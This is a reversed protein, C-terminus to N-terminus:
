RRNHRDDPGGNNASGGGLNRLQDARLKYHAVATELVQRLSYESTSELSATRSLDRETVDHLLKSLHKHALRVSASAEALSGFDATELGPPQPLSLAQALLRGYYFNVDDASRELIRKASDGETNERTFMEPAVEDIAEMLARHAEQLRNLLEEIGGVATAREESMERTM